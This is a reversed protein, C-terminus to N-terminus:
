RASSPEVTYAVVHGSGLSPSAGLGILGQSILPAANRRLRIMQASRILVWTGNISQDKIQFWDGRWAIEAHRRSTVVRNGIIGDVTMDCNESRGLRCRPATATLTVRKSGYTLVVQRRELAVSTTSPTTTPKSTPVDTLVPTSDVVTTDVLAHVRVGARRGRVEVITMDRLKGRASEPLAKAAADTLLTEGPRAIEGIRAAVHVADGFIDTGRDIVPGWHLGIHVPLGQDSLHMARAAATAAEVRGFAVMVGDGMTKIVRGGHAKTEALLRKIRDRALKYAIRDGFRDYLNVSGSIDAILVALMRNASSMDM